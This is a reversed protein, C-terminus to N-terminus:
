GVKSIDNPKLIEGNKYAEISFPINIGLKKRKYNIYEELQEPTNDIAGYLNHFSDPITTYHCDECLTIGNDIDYRLDENHAFSKLHHAQKKIEKSQGCCQCTYWDKKYVENRWNEYEVTSRARM